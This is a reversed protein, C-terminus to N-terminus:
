ETTRFKRKDLKCIIQLVDRSTKAGTPVGGPPLVWMGSLWFNKLGPLDKRILQYKKMFDPSMVWTMYSGKYNGTYRVYTMPTVVDVVEIHSSFGPYKHELEKTVCAAIREKEAKYAHKNKYLEEWYRFDDSYFFCEIVTKEKPALTPDFSFNRIGLWEIKQKGIEVPERLKYLDSVCDPGESLDMNVGFSVQVSSPYIKEGTFLEEHQRCGYNGGLLKNLTTYMDACSIVYDAAVVSGDELMIGTAKGDAVLIKEVRKRYYINGGLELLRKEISNSFQLSGGTPFGAAKNNLAAMTSIIALMSMEGVNLIIPFTERLFPDRFREAFEQISTRLCYKFDKMVPIMKWMMGLVDFVNFLEFAKDQSMTHRSFKRILNCFYHITDADDPSLEMMHKELRDADCYLIFTRGDLNTFRYFAEHNHFKRNQVAGLERWFKNFPDAESSGMLWHLCGDITYEGKKWATCLGGPISHSEYVDVAYGNMRAYCGASLGAIGAGIVVIKKEM